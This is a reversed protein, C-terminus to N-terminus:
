KAPVWLPSKNKYDNGTKKVFLDDAKKRSVHGDVFGVNVTKDLHRGSIADREQGPWLSRNKNIWLGPIYAAEVIQANGLVVPPIDAAHWWSIVAYGSDVILLTEGSCPINSSRLPTGQFEDWGPRIASSSRCISLNVGYNSCLVDSKLKPDSLRKSPCQIVTTKNGTKIYFDEIFNFWWWGVKDYQAYGAYGGPPQYDFLQNDFAYPLIQNETEYGFLGCLLQSINSGCVAAEAEQRSRSLVPLLIIMLLAVTVIVVLLEVLTFVRRKM